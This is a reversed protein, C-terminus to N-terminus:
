ITDNRKAANTWNSAMEPAALFLVLPKLLLYFYYCSRNFGLLCRVERALKDAEEETDMGVARAGGVGGAGRGEELFAAVRSFDDLM